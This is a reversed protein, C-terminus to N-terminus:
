YEPLGKKSKLIRNVKKLKYNSFSLNVGLNFQRYVSLKDVIDTTHSFKRKAYGFFLSFQSNLNRWYELGLNVEMLSGGRNFYTNSGKLLINYGYRLNLFPLIKSQAPPTLNIDLFIPIFVQKEDKLSLIEAGSGAGIFLMSRLRYGLILKPSSIYASNNIKNILETGNSDTKEIVKLLPFLHAYEIKVSPGVLEPWDQSFGIKSFGLLIIVIFVIRRM